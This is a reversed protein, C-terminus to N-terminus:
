QVILITLLLAIVLSMALILHRLERLENNTQRQAALISVILNQNVKAALERRQVPDM